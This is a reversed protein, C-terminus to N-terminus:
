PCTAPRNFGSACSDFAPETIITGQSRSNLQEREFRFIFLTISYSTLVIILGIISTQIQSKAKNVLEDNGAATLFYYGALVLYGTFVMGLIGLSYRIITFIITRPDRAVGANVGEEGAFNATQQNLDDLYSQAAVDQSILLIVFFILAVSATLLLRKQNTSVTM